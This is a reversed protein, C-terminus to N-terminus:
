PHWPCWLPHPFRKLKKLLWIDALVCVFTLDYYGHSPLLAKPWGRRETTLIRKSGKTSKSIVLPGSVHDPLFTAPSVLTLFLFPFAGKSSTFCCSSPVPSFHVSVHSLSYTILVNGVFTEPLGTLPNGGGDLAYGVLWGKNRSGIHLRWTM